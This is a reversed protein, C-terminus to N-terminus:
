LLMEFENEGESVLANGGPLTVANCSHPLQVLSILWTSPDVRLARFNPKRAPLSKGACGSRGQPPVKDVVVVPCV